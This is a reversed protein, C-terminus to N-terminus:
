AQRGKGLFPAPAPSSPERDIGPGGKRQSRGARPEALGQQTMHYSSLCHIGHALSDQVVAKEERLGAAGRLGRATCTVCRLALSPWPAPDPCPSGLMWRPCRAGRGGLRCGGQEQDLRGKWRVETRATTALAATKMRASPVIPSTRSGRARYPACRVMGGVEEREAENTRM